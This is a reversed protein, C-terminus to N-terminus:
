ATLLRQLRELDAPAADSVACFELKDKRWDISQYGQRSGRVDGGCFSEFFRLARLMADQTVDEADTRSSLIGVALNFTANLHPLVLQELRVRDEADL